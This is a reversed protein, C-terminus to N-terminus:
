KVRDGVQRVRGWAALGILAFAALAFTSPEPIVGLQGRIEGGEFASSRILIYGNGALVDAIRPATLTGSGSFTGTMSGPSDLTLSLVTVGNSNGPADNLSVFSSNGLLDQYTGVVVTFLGSGDDLTVDAFGTAPTVSPPVVQSSNLSADLNIVTANANAASFLALACYLALRIPSSNFM